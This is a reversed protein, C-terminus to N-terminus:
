CACTTKPSVSRSRSCRVSIVGITQKGSLIPVGLYSKAEDGGVRLAGYRSAMSHLDENIMIPQGSLIVKSTIGSGLPM